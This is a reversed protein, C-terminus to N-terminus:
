AGVTDKLLAVVQENYSLKKEKDLWKLLARLTSFLEKLRTKSFQGEILYAQWYSSDCEDWSNVPNRELAERIHNINNRYKRETSASMGDTKERYFQILDKTYFSDVTTPTFGLDEYIPIDQELIVMERKEKDNISVFESHREKGGTVFPSLEMGLERRVTNFDATIEIKGYKQYILLYLNYESEKLFVEALEEKGNIVAQRLSLHELVPLSEDPNLTLSNQAYLAFYEPVGKEMSLSLQSVEAHMPIQVREEQDDILQFAGNVKQLKRLFDNVTKLSNSIFTLTKDKLELTALVEGIQIKGKLESDSYMKLNDLWVLKKHSDEWTDITFCEENYLFNEGVAEDNLAFKYNYYSIEKKGLDEEKEDRLAALLEPYYDMLVQEHHLGKQKMLEEVLKAAQHFGKPGALVRVGNFYYEDNFPELLALTSYWPAFFQMNEHYNSVQFREKTFFDEIVFCSETQDIAQVLKLKLDAWRESMVREAESLRQGKETLFWEIGRMGNEYRYFFYLWFDLLGGLDKDSKIKARGKFETKLRYYGSESIKEYIFDKVQNVLVFKQQYFKEVKFEQLQTVEKKQMCCKKFKKGSGCSCPDNRGVLM